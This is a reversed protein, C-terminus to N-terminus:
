THFLPTTTMTTQLRQIAQEVDEQAAAYTNAGVVLNERLWTMARLIDSVEQNWVEMAAVFAHAATGTWDVNLRSVCDRVEM